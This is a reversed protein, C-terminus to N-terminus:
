TKNEITFNLATIIACMTKKCVEAEAVAYAKADMGLEAAIDIDAWGDHLLQLLRGQEENMGSERRIFDVHKQNGQQYVRRKVAQNM